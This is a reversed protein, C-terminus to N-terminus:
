LALTSSPTRNWQQALTQTYSGSTSYGVSMCWTSTPCSVGEAVNAVSTDQDYTTTITGSPSNTASWGPWTLGLTQLPTTTGATATQSGSAMCFSTSPCSLGSMPGQGDFQYPINSTLAPTTTLTQTTYQAGNWQELLPQWYGAADHYQGSAICQTTTFCQVRSLNWNATTTPPLAPNSAADLTLLSWSASPSTWDMALAKTPSPTGWGVAMCWAPTTTGTCSVGDLESTSVYDTGGQAPMTQTAWSSGNWAQAMGLSSAPPDTCCAASAKSSGVAECGGTSLSTGVCSVGNLVEYSTVTNTPTMLTWTGSSSTWSMALAQDLGGTGSASKGVAVCWSTNPCSIDDLYNSVNSGANPSTAIAWVSGNWQEILTQEPSAGSPDWYGVAWCWSSSLCKVATLDNNTMAPASLVGVALSENDGSGVASANTVHSVTIPVDSAISSSNGLQGDSNSGWSVITDSSTLALQHDEGGSSLATINSLMGSGGVGEVQVPILSSGSTSGNGLTGYQEAGWAFVTGTTTVVSSWSGGAAISLAGSLFSGCGGAACVEVPASSNTWTNNGLQGNWNAGWAFANGATSVAVDHYPGASVQSIGSLFSGCGSSGGVACVKQPTTYNTNAVGNGAEGYQDRGWTWVNGGSVALAHEGNAAISTVGTLVSAGCPYTANHACVEVPLSSSPPSTTGNGLQGDWDAGWEYVNGTSSLALVFANGAAIATINGLYSGNCGSTACVEVPTSSGTGTSINSGLQGAENGGVTYVNGGGTLGVSFDAGGAVAIVDSVGSLTAPSGVSSSTGLGLQGADNLGWTYVTGSTTLGVAHSSGGAISSFTTFYQSCPSAQGTNCVEVPVTANQGVDGVGVESYTDNGWSRATNDSQVTYFTTGSGGQTLREVGTLSGGGCGSVACVHVPVNSVVNSTNNGLQGSGGDGWTWVTGPLPGILAGAASDRSSVQVAGAAPMGAGGTSVAVPTSRNVNTGDGVQGVDNLGWAVVTGGAVAVGARFGFSASTVNALGVGCPNGTSGVACVQVPLDSDVSSGNGLEGNNGFGWEWLTGDNKIALVDANGVSISTIGSLFSGCGSPACVEVPIASDTYTNNGLQGAWNAGWTWVHGSSDLAVSLNGGGGVATVGSVGTVEVPTQSGNGNYGLEGNLNSGWAWVNGSSDVALSHEDGAGVAIIGSLSPVQQPTSDAPPAPKFLVVNDNWESSVSTTETDTLAGASTTTLYNVANHGGVSCGQSQDSSLQAWGSSPTMTVAQCAAVQLTMAIALEGGTAATASSTTTTLSTAGGSNSATETDLPSAALVGSWESLEGNVSSSTANTFTASTIGGPNNAYYWIETDYCDTSDYTQSAQVWGAPGTFPSAGCPGGSGLTAVLLDGATSASPVTVAVSNTPLVGVQPGDQVQAIGSSTSGGQGLQGESNSGWALPGSGVGLVYHNAIQSATLAKSYVAVDGVTGNLYQPTASTQRGIYFPSGSAPVSGTWLYRGTNVGDVYIKITTGDYTGVVNHWKGDNYGTANSTANLTPSNGVYFTYSGNANLQLEYGTANSDDVVDSTSSTSTKVWAEVSIAAFTGNLAADNNTVYGTSGNFLTASTADGSLPGPTQGQTYGGTYTGWHNNGSSDAASTGSTEGLRWFATPGDAIVQCAYGAPRFTAMTQMQLDPATTPTATMTESVAGAASTIQYAFQVGLPHNNYIDGWTAGHTVNMSVPDLTYATMALEGPEVTAGSTTTLTTGSSATNTGTQDLPSYAVGSWETMDGYMATSGSSTLVASTIGGPNNPYYWIEDDGDNVQQLQVARVWGAPASVVDTSVNLLAQIVLLNGKTSASPLMVSLSTTSPLTAFTGTQVNAITGCAPTPVIEVVALDWVGNAPATDNITVSTGGPVSSTERQVWFDDSIGSYNYEDVMTQGAGVTHYAGSTTDSGVGIVMSGETQTTLTESPQGSLGFGHTSAGIPSTSNAGTFTVVDIESSTGQSLEATFQVNTLVSPSYAWWVEADGDTAQNDYVAQHFTLGGGTVGTVTNQANDAAVFVAVVENPSTTTVFPSIVDMWPTGDDFATQDVSPPTTIVAAKIEVEAYDWWDTTPATDNLKVSTGSSATAANKRQVWWDDIMGADYYNHVMTQGAGVTRTASTAETDSGVGYVWSNNQTTTLSVTPASGTAHFAAQTAGIPNAAAGKFTVVTAEAITGAPTFAIDFGVNTLISAAHAWWVEATGDPASNEMVARTFTLGGGTVALVSTAANDGGVFVFVAENAATTTIPPTEIDDHMSVNQDIAVTSGAAAAHLPARPAVFVGATAGVFAALAGAM